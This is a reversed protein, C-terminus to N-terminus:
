RKRKVGATAGTEAGTKTGTEAGTGAKTPASPADAAALGRAAAASRLHNIRERAVGDKFSESWTAAAVQAEKAETTAEAAALEAVVFDGFACALRPVIAMSDNVVAVHQLACASEITALELLASSGQGRGVEDLMKEARTTAQAAKGYLLVWWSFLRRANGNDVLSESSSLLVDVLRTSCLLARVIRGHGRRTATILADFGHFKVYAVDLDPSPLSRQQAAHLLAHLGDVLDETDMSAFRVIHRMLLQPNERALV